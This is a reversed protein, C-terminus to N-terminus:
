SARGTMQVQGRLTAGETLALRPAKIQGEVSGTEGVAVTSESTITGVVEGNVTVARAVVNGKIKAQADINLAHDKVTVDGEVRGAITMDESSTVDGKIVVSASIWAASRREHEM